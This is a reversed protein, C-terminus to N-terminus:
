GESAVELIELGKIKAFHKPNATILILNFTKCTAGLLIDLDEIVQGKQKLQARIQGFNRAIEQDLGYVETLGSFFNLAGEEIKKREKIRYIGEYLEALCVFSSTLEGGLNEIFEITKAKGRLFNIIVSTEILYKKM